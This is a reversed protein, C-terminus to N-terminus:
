EEEYKEALIKEIEEKSPLDKISNLEFYSLFHKTTRYILPKGPSKKRGIIKILKKELLTKLCYSADVGRIASIEALTTPQHYAITSLTELSERSLKQKKEHKLFRKIYIDYENQTAFLYGGSAQIITIGGKNESYHEKLEAAAHEIEKDPFEKLIDKIKDLSLPDISVFILAEIINKLDKKM